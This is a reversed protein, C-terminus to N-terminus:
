KHYPEGRNIRFCRYLQELLMVRALQHPYTNLGLCISENARLLLAKSIGLSGGILFSISAGNEVLKADLHKALSVSDYQKGKLDLAILYENDKLRSLIKEGEKNKTEEIEKDSAGDKTPADSVEVIDLHCYAGLRKKYENVADRWYSEKLSGVCYITIKM